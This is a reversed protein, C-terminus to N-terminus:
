RMWGRDMKSVKTVYLKELTKYFGLSMYALSIKIDKKLNLNWHNAVFLRSEFTVDDAVKFRSM